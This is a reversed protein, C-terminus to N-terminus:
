PNQCHHRRLRCVIIGISRRAFEISSERLSVLGLWQQGRHILLVVLFEVLLMVLSWGLFRLLASRRFMALTRSPISRLVGRSNRLVSLICNVIFIGNLNQTLRRVVFKGIEALCQCTGNTTGRILIGDHERAHMGVTLTANHLGQPDFCFTGRAFLRGAFSAQHGTRQQIFHRNGVFANCSRQSPTWTDVTSHDAHCM